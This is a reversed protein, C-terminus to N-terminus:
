RRYLRPLLCAVWSRGRYLVQFITIITSHNWRLIIYQLCVMTINTRLYLLDHLAQMGFSEEVKTYPCIIVVTIVYVAFLIGINEM